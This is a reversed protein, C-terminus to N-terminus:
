RNLHQKTHQETYDKMRYSKGSIKFIESHHVLRDLIANAITPNSFTQGWKSLPINTTVIISKKEYRRSILQFFLNSGLNDIPLYGIEDIILLKYRLYNKLMPELRNEQYALKLREILEHCNVFYTSLHNKCAEVGLGTALHTKGVGSSGIFLVNRANEVFEMSMLNTIKEKDVSPQFNFDFDKIEKQYPFHATHISMRASRQKRYNLEKDTLQKLIEALSLQKDGELYNPLYEKIANLKLAELNNELETYATM